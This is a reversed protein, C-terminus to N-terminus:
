ASRKIEALAERHSGHRGHFAPEVRGPGTGISTATLEARRCIAHEPQAICGRRSAVPGIGQPVGQVAAVAELAPLGEEM